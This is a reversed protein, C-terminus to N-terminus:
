VKNRSKEGFILQIASSLDILKLGLAFLSVGLIGLLFNLQWTFPLFKHSAVAVLISGVLFATIRLLDKVPLRISFLRIVLLAQLVFMLGQTGLTALTAGMAKQSPILAFNLVINLLVGLLLIQNLRKLDGHATLLTGVVYIGSTFLFTPLLFKLIEAWYITADTYLWAMIEEGFVVGLIVMASSFSLTILFAQRLLPIITENSKFLRSFMPLLLGAMLLGFMNFADLLRYASAYVGSEYQGDPLLREIMVGDLRSYLTMLIIVLAFPFSSRLISPWTRWNFRLVSQRAKPFVLFLLVINTITLSVTQALVFYEIRFPAFGPAFWLLWGCIFIMLLRDMASMLSDTKYLGLGSLNGRLYFMLAVLTQNAGLILLIKWHKPFYGILYGAIVIVLFYVLALWFKLGLISPLMRGVQQRNQAIFRNNFNQLGFDNIIYFLYTFNFIAFYLGYSEPGVENQVTRDIGFIYFPKVLLNIGILIIINISFERKM